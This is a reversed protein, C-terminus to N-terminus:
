PGSQNLPQQNCTINSSHLSQNASVECLLNTQPSGGYCVCLCVRKWTGHCIWHFKLDEYHFLLYLKEAWIEEERTHGFLKLDVQMSTCCVDLSLVTIQNTPVKHRWRKSLTYYCCYTFQRAQCLQVRNDEWQQGCDLLALHKSWHSM